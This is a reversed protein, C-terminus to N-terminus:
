HTHWQRARSESEAADQAKLGLESLLIFLIVLLSPYAKPQKLFVINM